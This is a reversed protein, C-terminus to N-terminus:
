NDGALEDFRAEVGAKWAELAAMRELLATITLPISQGEDPGDPSVPNPQVENPQVENPTSM